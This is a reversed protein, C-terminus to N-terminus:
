GIDLDKDLSKLFNPDTDWSESIVAHILLQIFNDTINKETNMELMKM